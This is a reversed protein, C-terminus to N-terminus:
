SRDMGRSDYLSGRSNHGQHAEFVGVREKFEELLNHAALIQLATGYERLQQEIIDAKDNDSKFQPAQIKQRIDQNVQYVNKYNATYLRQTSNGNPTNL